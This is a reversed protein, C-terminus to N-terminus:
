LDNYNPDEDTSNYGIYKRHTFFLGELSDNVQNRESARTMNHMFVLNEFQGLRILMPAISTLRRLIDKSYFGKWRNLANVYISKKVQTTSFELPSLRIDKGIFTKHHLVRESWHIGLFRFIKEMEEKTHLVVREYYVPLCYANGLDICQNYMGEIMRNWVKLSAQAISLLKCDYLKLISFFFFLGNKDFNFSLEPENLSFGIVPIRRNIISHVAARGDRLMLIFKARPFMEHLYKMSLMILPDKDCLRKALKGHNRIIETIFRKVASKLVDHTVGAATLLHMHGASEWRQRMQLLDPIVRTEEGSIDGHADLLARMLTTGSRPVGGVVFKKPMDCLHPMSKNNRQFFSCLISQGDKSVETLKNGTRWQALKGCPMKRCAEWAKNGSSTTLDVFVSIEFPSYIETSWNDLAM